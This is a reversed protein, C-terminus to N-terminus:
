LRCEKGVRREESRNMHCWNTYREHPGHDILLGNGCVPHDERVAMVVGDAPAIVPDGVAGGFDVGSHPALYDPLRGGLPGFLSGYSSVIRPGACGAAICALLPLLLRAARM